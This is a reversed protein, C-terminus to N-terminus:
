EESQLHQMNIIIIIIVSIYRKDAHTRINVLKFDVRPAASFFVNKQKLEGLRSALYSYYISKALALLSARSSM